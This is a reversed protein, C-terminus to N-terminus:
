NYIHCCAHHYLDRDSHRMGSMYLCLFIVALIGGGALCVFVQETYTNMILVSCINTLLKKTKRFIKRVFTQM